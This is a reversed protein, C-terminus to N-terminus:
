KGEWVLMLPHAHEHYPKLCIATMGVLRDIKGTRKFHNRLSNEFAVQIPEGEYGGTWVVEETTYYKCSPKFFDVRVHNDDITYGM